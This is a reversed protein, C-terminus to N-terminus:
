LTKVWENFEQWSKMSRIHHLTPEEPLGLAKIWTVVRTVEMHQPPRVWKGPTGDSKLVYKGRFDRVANALKRIKEDRTM